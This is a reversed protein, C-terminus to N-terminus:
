RQRKSIKFFLGGLFFLGIVGEIAAWSGTFIVAFVGFFGAVGLIGGLLLSMSRPLFTDYKLVRRLTGVQPVFFLLSMFVLAVRTFIETFLSDSIALSKPTLYIGPELIAIWMLMTALIGCPLSLIFVIGALIRSSHDSSLNSSSSM